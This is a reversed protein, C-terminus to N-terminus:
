MRDLRIVTGLLVKLGNVLDEDKTYEDKSHSKGGVSPVFIMGTKSIRAMNQADHGAWSWMRKYSLGLDRCVTEITSVVEENFYTRDLTFSRKIEFELGEEEAITEGIIKLLKEAREIAKPDPSRAEVTFSAFGPVVNHVGPHINIKGITIRILGQNKLAHERVGIAFKAFGALADRRVSMPTTGAHNSEGKFSAEWVTIAVIGMPIGIKIGETDLEPGQEIHLELYYKPPNNALNNTREGKFGSRELAEGFSVGDRDKRSYIYGPDYVGTSLGSGMLSPTWRSGEENTFDILALKHKLRIGSERVIRLVELGAVVGLAGDYKGGGPVADLHSGIAITDRGEGIEAIINGAEDYKISAGLSGLMEVLLRRARVDNEDLSLRQMGKESDWGISSFLDFTKLFRDPDIKLGEVV